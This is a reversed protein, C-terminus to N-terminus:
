GESGGEEAEEELYKGALSDRVLKQVEENRAQMIRIKKKKDEDLDRSELLLQACGGIIAVPTIIRHSTEKLFHERLRYAKKVKDEARKRTEELEMAHFAFAIDGAVERLHEKEEEDATVDPAFSIALLGFLRDAHEVRIIAAEKDVCRSKFFCDGCESSKDVLMFPDKLDLANRICFPLDGGMVHECFRAVDERFGSGKVTAFTEGDRLFGLWAADYGRVEILTDCAKQLLTDRDEEVMILQNVNKIANLVSNLHEIRKEARKREELRERFSMGYAVFLEMLPQSVLNAKGILTAETFEKGLRQLADEHMEGVDEPPINAIVLERGLEAAMALYEEQPNSLHAKLLSFYADRITKKDIM